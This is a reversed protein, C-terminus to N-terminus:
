EKQDLHENKIEEELVDALKDLKKKRLEAVFEKIWELDSKDATMVCGDSGAATLSM